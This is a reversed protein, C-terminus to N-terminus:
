SRTFKQNSIGQMLLSDDAIRGINDNGVSTDVKLSKKTLNRTSNKLRKARIKMCKDGISTGLQIACYALVLHKAQNEEYINEAEVEVLFEAM